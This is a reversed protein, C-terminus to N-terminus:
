TAPLRLVTGGPIPYEPRVSPNLRYIETWRQADRLVTRAIELIHEGGDRVTYNRTSDPNTSVAMPVRTGPPPATVTTPNGPSPTIPAPAGIAIPSNTNNSAANNGSSAPPPPPPPASASEGIAWPYTSELVHIPPFYVQQGAQLQPADQKLADSTLPYNKNFQALAKAYKDTNYIRQSINAFTKDDPKVVYTEVDYSVVKPNQKAPAPNVTIPPSSSMPREIPPPPTDTSMPPTAPPPPTPMPTTEPPKNAVPPNPDSAPFGSGTPSTNPSTVPPKPDAPPPPPTSPKQDTSSPPFGSNGALAAPTPASTPPIPPPPPSPPEASKPATPSPGFGSAPPTTAPAPPPPPSTTEQKPPAVPAPDSFASPVAPPAPPTKDKPSAIPPPETTGPNAKPDLAAVQDTVQVSKKVEAKLAALQDQQEKETIEVSSPSAPPKEKTARVPPPGPDVPPSDPFAPTPKSNPGAITDGSKLAIPLIGPANKDENASPEKKTADSKPKETVPSIAARINDPRTSDEHRALRAAVVVGVLGLFSTAVILGVKTERTM